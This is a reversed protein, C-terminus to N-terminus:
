YSNIEVLSATYFIYIRMCHIAVDPIISTNRNETHPSSSLFVGAWYSYPSHGLFIHDYFYM